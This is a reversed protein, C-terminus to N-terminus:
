SMLAVSVQAWGVLVDPQTAFEMGRDGRLLNIDAEEVFAAEVQRIFFQRVLSVKRRDQADQAHQKAPQGVVLAERQGQDLECPLADGSLTVGNRGRGFIRIARLLRGCLGASRPECFYGYSHRPAHRHPRLSTPRIRRCTWLGADHRYRGRRTDAHAFSPPRYSQTETLKPRGQASSPLETANPMQSPSHPLAEPSAACLAEINM